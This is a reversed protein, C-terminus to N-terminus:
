ISPKYLNITKKATSEWTYERAKQQAEKEMKQKKNSDTLIETIAQAIKIPDNDVVVGCPTECPIETNFIYKAGQTLTSVVAKERAWAELTVIGFPEYNPTLCVLEAGDFVNLRDESSLNYLFRINKSKSALSEIYEAYKQRKEELMGAIVYNYDKPLSQSAHIFNEFGKEPSIRGFSLIYPKDLGFKKKFEVIDEKICKVRLFDPEIGNPILHIRKSDIGPALDLMDQMVGPSIAVIRKNARLSEEELKVIEKFIPESMDGKVARRSLLIHYTAVVNVHKLDRALLPIFYYGHLHIITEKDYSEELDQKALEFFEKRREHQKDETGSYPTTFENSDKLKIRHVHLRDNYYYDDENEGKCAVGLLDIEKFWEFEAQILNTVAVGQGGTIHGPDQWCVHVIKSEDLLRFEM